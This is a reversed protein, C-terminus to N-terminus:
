ILIGVNHFKYCVLWFSCYENYKQVMVSSSNNLVMLVIFLVVLEFSEHSVLNMRLKEWISTGTHVLIIFLDIQSPITKCFQFSAIISGICFIM